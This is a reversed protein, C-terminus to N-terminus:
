PHLLRNINIAVNPFTDPYITGTTQEFCNQYQGNKLQKFVWMKQHPLDIVWYESIGNGAYIGKKVGLDKALTRDSIEILWYIDQPYPHHTLYNTYPPVVIALDPEPESDTLTIPHAERIVAQGRLLDRLYQAVTYNVSSHLPGEPSVKIVEGRLLEVTQDALLGTEIMQHYDAVSWKHRTEM